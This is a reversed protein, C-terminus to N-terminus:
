TQDVSISIYAKYGSTWGFTYPYIILSKPNFNAYKTGEKYRSIIDNMDKIVISKHPAKKVNPYEIILNILENDKGYVWYDKLFDYNENIFTEMDTLHKLKM